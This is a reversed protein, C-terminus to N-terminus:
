QFFTKVLVLVDDLRLLLHEIGVRVVLQEGDAGVRRQGIEAPQKCSFDLRLFVGGAGRSPLSLPQGQPREGLEETQAHDKRFVAACGADLAPCAKERDHAGRRSRPWSWSRSWINRRRWNRRSPPARRRTARCSGPTGCRM